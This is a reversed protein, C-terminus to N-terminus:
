RHLRTVFFSDLSELLSNRWSSWLWFYPMSCLIFLKIILWKIVCFQQQFGQFAGTEVALPSRQLHCFVRLTWVARHGRWDWHPCIPWQLPQQFDVAHVPGVYVEVMFGSVLPGCRDGSLPLLKLDPQQWHLQMDENITNRNYKLSVTM